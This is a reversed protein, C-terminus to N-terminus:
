RIYVRVERVTAAPDIRAGLLIRTEPIGLAMMARMIEVAHPRSQEAAMMDPISTGRGPVVAVVEYKLNPDRAQAEHVAYRFETQYNPHPVDYRVTLLPPRQDTRATAAIQASSPPEPYPAFTAQDILTCGPLGAFALVVTFLPPLRKPRPLLV